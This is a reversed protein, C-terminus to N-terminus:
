RAASRPAAPAAPAPPGAPKVAAAHDRWLWRLSDPLISFGHKPSHFGHGFAARFDWGAWTLAREMERNALSWSGAEQELDQDGDQLFVRIPKRPTRRILPPYNHGGDRQSDGAAINTYSGIWSLVKRFQDPRQWAVTFACIAGSSLGAIARSEPDKRLKVTKEVEPLMEETLFRAYQDSLTDYEFSRNRKGDAFVGPTIFVAATVPMDGKAILNDLVVPVQKVYQHGDQFVIVAAPKGARYQAPVYIWWDRETGAFVKSHWKKQQVVKGRPVGPRAVSDPHITWAEVEVGGGIRKGDVNYVFRAAAGDSLTEVSAWVGTGAIPALKRRVLGDVAQATVAKAAPAEIAFVVDLGESKAGGGALLAEPGFWKRLKDVLADASPGTPQAALAKRVGAVDIPPPEDAAPRAPAPAPAAAAPPPAPTQASTQASAPGALALVLLLSRASRTVAVSRPPGRM